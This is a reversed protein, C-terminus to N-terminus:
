VLMAGGELHLISGTAFPNTMLFIIAQAVDHAQGVRRAPLSAAVQAFLASRDAPPM